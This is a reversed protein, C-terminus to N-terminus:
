DFNLISWASCLRLSPFFLLFVTVRPDRETTNLRDVSIACSNIPWKGRLYFLPFPINNETSCANTPILPHFFLERLFAQMPPQRKHSSTLCWQTLFGLTGRWVPIWVLGHLDENCSIWGGFIYDSLHVLVACTLPFSDSHIFAFPIYSWHIVYGM